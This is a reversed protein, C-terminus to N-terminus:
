PRRLTTKLRRRSIRKYLGSGIGRYWRQHHKAFSGDSRGLFRTLSEELFGAPFDQAGGGSEKLLLSVIGSGHVIDGGGEFEGLAAEIVVKLRLVFDQEVDHRV